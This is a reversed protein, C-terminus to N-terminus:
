EPPMKKEEERCCGLFLGFVCQSAKARPGPSNRLPYLIRGRESCLAYVPSLGSAERINRQPPTNKGHYLSISFDDSVHGHMMEIHKSHSVDCYDTSSQSM